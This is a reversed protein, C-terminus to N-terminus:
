AANRTMVHSSTAHHPTVHCSDSTGVALVQRMQRATRAREAESSALRDAMAASPRVGVGLSSM